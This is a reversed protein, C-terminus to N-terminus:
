GYHRSASDSKLVARLAAQTRDVIGRLESIEQMGRQELEDPLGKELQAARKAIAVAGITAAAGKIAHMIDRAGSWREYEYLENVQQLQARTDAIFEEILQAIEESPGGFSLLQLIEAPDVLADALNVVNENGPQAELKLPEVAAPSPESGRKAYRNVAAVLDKARIPKTLFAAVKAAEAEAHAEETADATLMVIPTLDAPALFQYMKAAEIGSMNPMHMDMLAIDYIGRELADLAEEGDRVVTVSHGATEWVPHATRQNTPNDDAVLVAFRRSLAVDAESAEDALTLANVLHALSRLSDSDRLQNIESLYSMHHDIRISDYVGSLILYPCGIAQESIHLAVDDAKSGWSDADIFVAAPIQEVSSQNLVAVASDLKWGQVALVEEGVITGPPYPSARLTLSSFPRM